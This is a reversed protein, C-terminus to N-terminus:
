HGDAVEGYVGLTQEVMRETTFRERAVRGAEEGMRQALPPDDLVRILADALAGPDRPPVLLGTRGDQVAERCGGVDTCVIPLDLWMAELLSLPFSEAWSPNCFVDCGRLLPGSGRTLGILRVRGRLGTSEIQAELATRGGGEGAVVVTAHPHRSTVTPMADILTELGKGPRLLTLVGIVPGESRLEALGSALHGEPPPDVGNHVVRVRRASGVSAALGGEAECVCLTRSALAALGREVARYVKREAEPMFGAFAFGHPTYVVPVRPAAPRAARAVAGAKSSHAHVVDPRLHRVVQALGRVARADDPISIARTMQLDVVDGGLRGELGALPGCVTVSHGKRRLGESLTAVHEFVGGDSPQTVMLIRM